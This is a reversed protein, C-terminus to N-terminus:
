NAIGSYDYQLLSCWCGVEWPCLLVSACQTNKNLILSACVWLFVDVWVTACVLQSLYKTQVEFYIKCLTATQAISSLLVERIILTFSLGAHESFIFTVSYCRTIAYTQCRCFVRKLNVWRKILWDWESCIASTIQREIPRLTGVLLSVRSLFWRPSKDPNRM